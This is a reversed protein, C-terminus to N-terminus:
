GGVGVGVGVGVWLVATKYDRIEKGVVGDKHKLGLTAVRSDRAPLEHLALLHGFLVARYPYIYAGV